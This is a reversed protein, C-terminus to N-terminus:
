YFVAIFTQDAQGCCELQKAHHDRESSENKYVHDGQVVVVADRVIIISITVVVWYTGYM